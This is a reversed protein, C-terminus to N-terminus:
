PRYEPGSRASPPLVGGNVAALAGHDHARLPVVNSEPVTTPKEEVSIDLLDPIEPRPVDLGQRQRLRAIAPQLKSWFTTALM